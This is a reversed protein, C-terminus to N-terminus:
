SRLNHRTGRPLNSHSYNEPQLLLNENAVGAYYYASIPNIIDDLAGGSFGHLLLNSEM